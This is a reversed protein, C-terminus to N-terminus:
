RMFDPVMPLFDRGSIANAALIASHAAGNTGFDNQSTTDGAFFLNPVTPLSVPPRREGMLGTVPAIGYVREPLGFTSWEYVSDWSAYQSRFWALTADCLSQLLPEDKREDPDQCNIPIWTQILHSSGLKRSPDIGTTQEWGMCTGGGFMRPAGPLPDVVFVGKPRDPEVLEKIAIQGVIGTGPYLNDLRRNLEEPLHEAPLIKRMADTPVNIIYNEATLTESKGNSRARVGAVKYDDFLV